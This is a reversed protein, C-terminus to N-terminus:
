HHVFLWFSTSDTNQSQIKKGCRGLEKPSSYLLPMNGRVYLAILLYQVLKDYILVDPYLPTDVWENEGSLSFSGGYGYSFFEGLGEKGRSSLVRVIKWLLSMLSCWQESGVWVNIQELCATCSHSHRKSSANFPPSCVCPVGSLATFWWPECRQFGGCCVCSMGLDCCAVRFQYCLKHCNSFVNSFENKSCSM